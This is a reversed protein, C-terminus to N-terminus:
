LFRHSRILSVDLIDGPDVRDHRFMRNMAVPTSTAFLDNLGREGIGQWVGSESQAENDKGGPKMVYDTDTYVVKYLHNGYKEIKM